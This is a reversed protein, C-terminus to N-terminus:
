AIVASLKQSSFEMRGVYMESGEERYGDTVTESMHDRVGSPDSPVYVFGGARLGRKARRLSSM